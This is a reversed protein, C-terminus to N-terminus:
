DVRLRVRLALQNLGKHVLRYERTPLPLVINAASAFKLHALRSQLLDRLAAEYDMLTQFGHSTDGVGVEHEDRDLHIAVAALGEKFGGFSGQYFRAVV